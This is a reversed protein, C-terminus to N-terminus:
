APFRLGFVSANLASEVHGEHHDTIRELPNVFIYAVSPWHIEIGFDSGTLLTKWSYTNVCKSIVTHLTFFNTLSFRVCHIWKLIEWLYQFEYFKKLIVSFVHVCRFVKIFSLTSQFGSVSAVVSNLINKKNERKRGLFCIILIYFSGVKFNNWIQTSTSLFINSRLTFSTAFFHLFDCLSFSSVTCEEGM